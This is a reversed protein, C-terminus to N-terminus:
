ASQRSRRLGLMGAGLLLLAMASPEPVDSIFRYTPGSSDYGPQISTPTYEAIGLVEDALAQNDQYISPPGPTDAPAEYQPTFPDVFSYFNVHGQGDFRLVDSPSTHGPDDYVLVDGAVGAFPLTYTLVNWSSVGNATQDPAVVWSLHQQNDVNGNGFEDLTIVVGARAPLVVMVWVACLLLCKLIVKMPYEKTRHTDNNITSGLM